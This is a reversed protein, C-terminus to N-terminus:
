KLLNVSNQVLQLIGFVSIMIFLGILGYIIHNKGTERKEVNNAGAIFEVIGWIFMAVAIAMMLGILPNLIQTTINNILNSASSNM